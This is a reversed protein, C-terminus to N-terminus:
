TMGQEIPVSLCTRLTHDDKHGYWNIRVPGKGGAEKSPNLYESEPENQADFLVMTHYYGEGIALIEAFEPATAGASVNKLKSFRDNSEETVLEATATTSATDGCAGSPATRVYAMALDFRQSASQSYRGATM